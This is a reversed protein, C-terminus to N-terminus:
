KAFTYLDESFSVTSNKSGSSKGGGGGSFSRRGTMLRAGRMAPSGMFGRLFISIKGFDTMVAAEGVVVVGRRVVPAGAEVEVLLGDAAESSSSRVSISPREEKSTELESSM